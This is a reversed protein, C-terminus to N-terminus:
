FRVGASVSFSGGLVDSAFLYAADFTFEHIHVGLGASAFSPIISNGGYHYGARASVMGDFCYEAGVGAAFAGSLYYDGKVRARIAHEDAVSLGYGCGATLSTPLSFDGTSQSAVKQGISSVGAAFDFDEIRGAVFADAAIASNSYNSLLQEKAYKLNVGLALIDTLAYGAGVSVLIESPTFKESAIEEGTGRSFSISGAVKGYTGAAGASIYQTGSIAPMYNQYGVGGVLSVGSLPVVAVSPVYTSGMAISAPNYDVQIFPLADSVPGQAAAALSVMGAALMIYLKKM